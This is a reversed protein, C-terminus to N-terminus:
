SNKDFRSPIFEDWVAEVEIYGDQKRSSIYYQGAARARHENSYIAHMCQYNNWDRGCLTWDSTIIQIANKVIEVECYKSKEIHKLYYRM